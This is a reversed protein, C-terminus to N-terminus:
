ARCHRCYKVPSQVPLYDLASVLRPLTFYWEKLNSVLHSLFIWVLWMPEYSLLNSRTGSLCSTPPELGSPGVVLRLSKYFSLLRHLAVEHKGRALDITFPFFSTLSFLRPTFLLFVFAKRSLYAPCLVCPSAWFGKERYTLYPSLLFGIILNIPTYSLQSLVQGALLPDHTRIGDDGGTVKKSFFALWLFKLRFFLSRDWLILNFSGLFSINM